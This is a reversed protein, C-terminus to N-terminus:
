AVFSELAYVPDDDMTSMARLEQEFFFEPEGFAPRLDSLWTAAPNVEALFPRKCWDPNRAQLFSMVLYERGAIETIGDLSVKGPHASMVPGRATRGLGSTAKMAETYISLARMLPLKFYREAGTEREVFMYYPVVGLRVQMKWMEAWTEPADNITRVVPGQARIVAGVSRLREIAARAAPTSLERPHVFHAMIALHKGSAVIREFLRMLDDSDDDTLVRYPWYGLMKTGFRINQIHDFEPGLLPEIYRALPKTKMIMPDGGTFLVDTVERHARLYDVFRMENDTTFKLDPMGVFQAWRFCFTCYAHCTQGASPFVLCTQDYKHQMGQLPEGDLMPVNHTLQGDPHPNLERRIGDAVRRIETSAGSDLARSMRIYAGPSLMGDQPFTLRFIPDDPVSDWDILEDIVYNNTRFPLVHGVVDITRRVSAPLRDALPSRDLDRLTYPRLRPRDPNGSLMANLRENRTVPIQHSRKDPIIVGAALPGYIEFSKAPPPLHISAM